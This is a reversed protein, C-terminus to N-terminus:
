GQYADILKGGGKICSEKRLPNYELDCKSGNQVGM